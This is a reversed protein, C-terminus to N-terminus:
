NQNPGRYIQHVMDSLKPLSQLAETTLPLLLGDFAFGVVPIQDNKIPYTQPVAAFLSDVFM